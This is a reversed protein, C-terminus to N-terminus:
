QNGTYFLNFTTKNPIVGYENRKPIFEVVEPFIAGSGIFIKLIYSM